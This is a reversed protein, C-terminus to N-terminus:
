FIVSLQTYLTRLANDLRVIIAVHVTKLLLPIVLIILCHALFGRTLTGFLM